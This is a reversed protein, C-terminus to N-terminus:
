AFGTIIGKTVTITKGVLGATTITIDIGVTTGVLYGTASMTGLLKSPANGLGHFAFNGAGNQNSEFATNVGTGTNDVAQYGVINTISGTGNVTAFATNLVALDIVGSGRHEIFTEQATIQGTLHGSGTITLGIDNSFVPNANDGTFGFQPYCGFAVSLASPDVINAAGQDPYTGIQVLAVGPLVISSATLLGNINVKDSAVLPTLTGGSRAWDNTALNALTDWSGGVDKFEISGANDRLGYGNVGQVGFNIYSGPSLDLAGYYLGNLRISNFM